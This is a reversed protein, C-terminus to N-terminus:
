EDIVNVYGQRKIADNYFPLKNLTLGLDGRFDFCHKRDDGAEKLWHEIENHASRTENSKCGDSTLRDTYFVPLYLREVKAVVENNQKGKFICFFERYSDFFSNGTSSFVHQGVKYKNKTKESPFNDYCRNRPGKETATETNTKLKNATATQIPKNCRKTKVDFNWGRDMCKSQYFTWHKKVPSHNDAVSKYNYDASNSLHEEGALYGGTSSGSVGSRLNAAQQQYGAIDQALLRDTNRNSARRQASYDKWYKNELKNAAALASAGGRIHGNMKRITKTIYALQKDTYNIPKVGFIIDRSSRNKKSLSSGPRIYFYMLNKKRSREISFSHSDGSRKLKVFDTYMPVRSVYLITKGDLLLWETVQMKMRMSDSTVYTVQHLHPYHDSIQKKFDNFKEDRWWAWVVKADPGVMAGGSIRLISTNSGSFYQDDMLKLISDNYDHLETKTMSSSCANIVVVILLLSLVKLKM